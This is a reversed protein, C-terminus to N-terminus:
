REVLLQIFCLLFFHFPCSFNLIWCLNIPHENIFLFSLALLLFFVGVVCVVYPRENKSNWCASFQVLVYLLLWQLCMIAFCVLICM